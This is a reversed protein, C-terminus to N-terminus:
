IALLHIPAGEDSFNFFHPNLCVIARAGATGADVLGSARQATFIMAVVQRHTGLHHDEPILFGYAPERAASSSLDALEARLRELSRGADALLKLHDLNHEVALADIKNWNENEVADRMAQWIQERQILAAMLKQEWDELEKRREDTGALEKEMQKRIGVISQQYYEEAMDANQQKMMHYVLLNVIM